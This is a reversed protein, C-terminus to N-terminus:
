LSKESIIVESEIKDGFWCLIFTHNLVMTIFVCFTTLIFTDPQTIIVFGSFCLSFTMILFHILYTPGFINNMEDCQQYLIVQLKILNRFRNRFKKKNWKVASVGDNLLKFSNKLHCFHAVIQSVILTYLVDFIISQAASMIACYCQYLYTSIFYKDWDFPFWVLYPHLLVLAGDAFYIQLMKLLPAACLVSSITMYGAGFIVSVRRLGLLTSYFAEQDESSVEDFLEDMTKMVAKIRERNYIANIFKALALTCNLIGPVVTFKDILNNETDAIFKIEQIITLVSVLLNLLMIKEFHEGKFNGIKLGLALIVKLSRGYYKEM